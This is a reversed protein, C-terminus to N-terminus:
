VCIWIMMLQHQMMIKHQVEPIIDDSELMEDLIRKKGQASAFDSDKIPFYKVTKLASPLIWECQQQTCTEVEKVKHLTELYFLLAAIHTCM